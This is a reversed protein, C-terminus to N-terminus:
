VSWYNCMKRDLLNTEKNLGPVVSILCYTRTTLLLTISKLPDHLGIRLYLLLSFWYRSFFFFIYIYIYPKKYWNSPHFHCNWAICNLYITSPTHIHSLSLSFSISVSLHFLSLLSPVLYFWWFEQLVRCTTIWATAMLALLFVSTNSAPSSCDSTFGM